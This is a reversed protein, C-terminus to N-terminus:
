LMRVPIAYQTQPSAFLLGGDVLMLLSVGFDELCTSVVEVMLKLLLTGILGDLLEEDELDIEEDAERASDGEIVDLAFVDVEKDEALSDVEEAEVEFIADLGKDLMKDEEEVLLKFDDELLSIESTKGKDLLVTEDTNELPSKEVDEELM